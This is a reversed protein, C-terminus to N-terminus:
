AAAEAGEGSLADLFDWFPDDSDDWDVEGVNAEWWALLTDDRGDGPSGRDMHTADPDYDHEFRAIVLATDFDYDEGYDERINKIYTDQQYASRFGRENALENRRAHKEGAV